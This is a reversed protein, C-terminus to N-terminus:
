TKPPGRVVSEDALLRAFDIVKVRDLQSLSRFTKILEVAQLAGDDEVREDNAVVRFPPKPDVHDPMLGAKRTPRGLWRMTGRSQEPMLSLYTISATSTTRYGM